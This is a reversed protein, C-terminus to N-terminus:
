SKSVRYQLDSAFMLQKFTKKLAKSKFNETVLERKFRVYDGVKAETKSVAAWFTKDSHEKVELYTYGGAHEMTVIEGQYYPKVEAQESKPTIDTVIPATKADQANLNIALFALAIFTNIKTM